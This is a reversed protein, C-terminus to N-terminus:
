TENQRFPSEATLAAIQQTIIKKERKLFQAIPDRLAPDHIFHASYTPTPLYGRALKHPGQAGAEVRKLGHNIAFDIAQYYCAEFHLFKIDDDAGWNRGYLCAEGIFNLAGCIWEKQRRGLILLIRDAMRAGILTFFERPLYAQGWKRDSTNLYFRYFADWHAETIDSGTVHVFDVGSALAAEREKRIQKRKRSTLADLFDEFKGYNQNQWHFQVGLRQLWGAQDFAQWDPADLFPVHVSSASISHCLVEAAEILSQRLDMAANEAVLLRPGPVPTFPIGGQLKPYYRGGAREYAEAWNWDFVYEGYSHNKLYLPMVGMVQEKHNRNKVNVILHQPQWGTKATVAGSDELASLFAYSVFPNAPGACRDWATTTLAALSAETRITLSPKM